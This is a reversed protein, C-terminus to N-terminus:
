VSCSKLMTAPRVATLALVPAEPVDVIVTVPRLPNPPATARVEDMEGAAPRVHVRVGVLTVPEPAEVSDQLPIAPTYVTVIVPVLAARTWM